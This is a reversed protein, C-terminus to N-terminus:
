QLHIKSETYKKILDSRLADYKELQLKGRKIAVEAEAKSDFDDADIQDLGLESGTLGNLYFFRMDYIEKDDKQAFFLFERVFKDLDIQIESILQQVENKEENVSAITSAKVSMLFVMLSTQTIAVKFQEFYKSNGDLKQKLASAKVENEEKYNQLYEEIAEIAQNPRNVFGENTMEELTGIQKENM